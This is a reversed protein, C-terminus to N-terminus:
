GGESKYGWDLKVVDGNKRKGFNRYYGDVLLFKLENETCGKETFYHMLFLDNYEEKKLPTVREAINCLGFPFSFYLKTLNSSKNRNKWENKNQFCGDKFTNKYPFKFVLNGIM